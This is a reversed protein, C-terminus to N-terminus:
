KLDQNWLPFCNISHLTLTILLHLYHVMESRQWRCRRDNSTTLIRLTLLKRPMWVANLQNWSSANHNVKATKGLRNQLRVQNKTLLLQQIYTAPLRRYRRPQNDLVTHVWQSGIAQPLIIGSANRSHCVIHVFIELKDLAPLAQLGQILRLHRKPHM